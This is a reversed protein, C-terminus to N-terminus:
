VFFYNITEKPFIFYTNPNVIRILENSNFTNSYVFSEITVSRYLLVKVCSFIILFSNEDDKYMQEITERDHGTLFMAFQILDENM